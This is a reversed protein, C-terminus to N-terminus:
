DESYKGYKWIYTWFRGTVTKLSFVQFKRCLVSTSQCLILKKKRIEFEFPYKAGKLGLIRQFHGFFGFVVLRPM